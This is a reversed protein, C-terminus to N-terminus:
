NVSRIIQWTWMKNFLKQVYYETEIGEDDIYIGKNNVLIGEDDIPKGKM